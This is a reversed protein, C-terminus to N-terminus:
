GLVFATNEATRKTRHDPSQIVGNETKMDKRHELPLIIQSIPYFRVDYLMLLKLRQKLISNDAEKKQTPPLPSKFEICIRYYKAVRGGKLGVAATVTSHIDHHLNFHCKYRTTILHLKRGSM